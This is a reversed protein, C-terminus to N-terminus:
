QKKGGIAWEEKSNRIIMLVFMLIACALFGLALMKFNCWGTLFSIGSLIFLLAAIVGSTLITFQM